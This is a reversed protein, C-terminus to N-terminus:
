VRERPWWPRLHAGIHGFSQQKAVPFYHAMSLHRMLRIPLIDAIHRISVARLSPLRLRAVYLHPSSLATLLM